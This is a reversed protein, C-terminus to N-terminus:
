GKIEKVLVGNELYGEINDINIWPGEEMRYKYLRIAAGFEDYSIIIHFKIDPFRVKLKKEWITAIQLALKLSKESCEEGEPFYDNIYVHNCFAEFETRDRFNETPKFHVEMFGSTNVGRLLVCSDWEVFDKLFIKPIKSIEVKPIDAIKELQKKM